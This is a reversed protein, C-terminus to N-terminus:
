TIHPSRTLKADRIVGPCKIENAGTLISDSM